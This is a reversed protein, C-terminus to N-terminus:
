YLVSLIMYISQKNQLKLPPFILFLRLIIYLFPFNSYFDIFRNFLLFLFFTNKKLSDNILKNVM